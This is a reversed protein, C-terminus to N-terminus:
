AGANNWARAGEHTLGCCGALNLSALGQLPALAAVGAVTLAAVNRLSLAGLGTLAALQAVGAHVFVCPECAFTCPPAETTRVYAVQHLLTGLGFVSLWPSSSGSSSMHPVLHRNCISSLAAGCHAGGETSRM